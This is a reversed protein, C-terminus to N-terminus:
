ISNRSICTPKEGTQWIEWMKGYAVEISRRFRDTDFLPNTDRNRALKAKVDCLRARDRALALALAEYDALSNTVLEPLGIAHLLSAAV